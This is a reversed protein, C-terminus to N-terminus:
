NNFTEKNNSYSEIVPATDERYLDQLVFPNCM